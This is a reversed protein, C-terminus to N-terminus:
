KRARKRGPTELSTRVLQECTARAAELDVGGPDVLVQAGIGRLLAVFAIAFGIPDADARITGRQQGTRVLAEIGDRFRADDAVFVERLSAEEAFSAGWMVFFARGEEGCGSIRDLYADAIAVIADADPERESLGALFARQTRAALREVLVARSGFRHNALGRSYGAEAGIDALSTEHIGKRAFLRVAADLLARESENRREAQTRRPSPASSVM